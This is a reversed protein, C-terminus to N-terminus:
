GAILVIYQIYLYATVGGDTDSTVRVMPMSGKLFDHNGCVGKKALKLSIM